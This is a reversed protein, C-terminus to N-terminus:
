DWAPLLLYSGWSSVLARCMREHQVCFLLRCNQCGGQSCHLISALSAAHQGYIGGGPGMRWGRPFRAVAARSLLERECNQTMADLYVKKKPVPESLLGRGGLRSPGRRKWSADGGFGHKPIDGVEWLASVLVLLGLCLVSPRSIKLQSPLGMFWLIARSKWAWNQWYCKLIRWGTEFTFLSSESAQLVFTWAGNSQESGPRARERATTYTGAM